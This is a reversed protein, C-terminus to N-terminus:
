QLKFFVFLCQPPPSSRREISRNFRSRFSGDRDLRSGAAATITSGALSSCVSPRGSRPWRRPPCSSGDASLRATGIPRRRRAGRRKKNEDDIGAAHTKTQGPNLRREAVRNTRRAAPPPAQSITRRRSAKSRSTKVVQWKKKSFGAGKSARFLARDLENNRNKIAASLFKSFRDSCDSTENRKPLLGREACRHRGLSIASHADPRSLSVGNSTNVKVASGQQKRRDSTSHRQPRQPRQPRM